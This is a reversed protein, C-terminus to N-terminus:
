PKPCLAQGTEKCLQEVVKQDWSYPYKTGKYYRRLDGPSIPNDNPELVYEDEYKPINFWWHRFARIISM